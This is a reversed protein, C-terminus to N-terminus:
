NGGHSCGIERLETEFKDWQELCYKKSSIRAQEKTKDLRM